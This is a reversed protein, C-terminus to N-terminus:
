TRKEWKLGVFRPFSWPQKYLEMDAPSPMPEEMQRLRFGNNEFVKLYEELPRHIHTTIVDTSDESIRFPAEVFVENCYSFWPENEYMWYRPWFCPHTLTAAFFAGSPLLRSLAAAFLELVPVSIVVMGAFAVSISQNSLLDEADEIAKAFFETPCEFQLKRAIEISGRSPDVGLIKSASRSLISTLEGTGCGIDLLVTKDCDRLLEVAMPVLIHDFSLDKGNVIQRHRREALNDFERALQDTTKPMSLSPKRFQM